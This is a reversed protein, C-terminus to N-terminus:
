TALQGSAARQPLTFNFTSGGGPGVSEVWIRGGHLEVVRRALALGLGSGEVAPDLRTFVDFVRSQLNPEIGRGNDRVFFLEKGRRREHGIEIRPRPQDGMFKIANELLNQFLLLLRARDAMVAPLREQIQVVVGQEAIAGALM